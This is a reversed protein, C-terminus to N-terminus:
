PSKDSNIKVHWNRVERYVTICNIKTVPGKLRIYEFLVENSCCDPRFCEFCVNNKYILKQIYLHISVKITNVYKMLNNKWLIPRNHEKFPWGNPRPQFRRWVFFIRTSSHHQCVNQAKQSTFVHTFLWLSCFMWMSLATMVTVSASFSGGDRCSCIEAPTPALLWPQLMLNKKKNGKKKQLLAAACVQQCM